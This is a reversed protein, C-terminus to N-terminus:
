LSNPTRNFRCYASPRSSPNLVPGRVSGGVDGGLEIPTCFTATAAASGGSSGGPTRTLDWPNSSSGYVENYSQLDNAHIPLNTKGWIVAGADVVRQVMVENSKVPERSVMPDGCTTPMGEVDNNEKVESILIPCNQLCIVCDLTHM